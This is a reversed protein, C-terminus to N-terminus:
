RGSTARLCSLNEAFIEYNQDYLQGDPSGMDVTRVTGLKIM